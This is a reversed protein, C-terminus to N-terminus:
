SAIGARNEIPKEAQYGEYKRLERPDFEEWTTFKKACPKALCRRYRLHTNGYNRGGYVCTKGGCEPCNM